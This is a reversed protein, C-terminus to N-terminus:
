LIMKIKLKWVLHFHVMEMCVFDMYIIGLYKNNANNTWLNSDNSRNRNKYTDDRLTGYVFFCNNLEYYNLILYCIKNIIKDMLINRVYGFVIFNSKNIDDDESEESRSM